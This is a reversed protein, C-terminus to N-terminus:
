HYPNEEGVQTSGRCVAGDGEFDRLVHSGVQAAGRGGGKMVRLQLRARKEGRGTAAEVQGGGEGEGEGEEERHCGRPRM